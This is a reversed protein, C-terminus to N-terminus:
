LCFLAIVAEKDAEIPSLMQTIISYIFGRTLNFRERGGVERQMIISSM